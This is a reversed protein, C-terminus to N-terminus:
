EYDAECRRVIEGNWMIMTCNTLIGLAEEVTAVVAYIRRGYYCRRFTAAADKATEGRIGSLYVAPHFRGNTVRVGATNDVDDTMVLWSKKPTSGTGFQEEIMENLTENMENEKTIVM